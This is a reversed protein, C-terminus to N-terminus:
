IGRRSHSSRNEILVSEDLRVNGFEVLLKESYKQYMEMIEKILKTNEDNVYDMPPKGVHLASAEKYSSLANIYKEDKIEKCGMEELRNMAFELFCSDGAIKNYMQSYQKNQKATIKAYSLMSDMIDLRDDRVNEYARYFGLYCYGSEDYGTAVAKNYFEVTNKATPQFADTGKIYIYSYDYGDFDDVAKKADVNKIDSVFEIAYGFGDSVKKSTSIGVTTSVTLAAVLLLTTVTKPVKKKKHSRKIKPNTKNNKVSNYSMMSSSIINGILIDCKGNLIDNFSYRHNEYLIALIERTLASKEEKSMNIRGAINKVKEYIYQKAQMSELQLKANTEEVVKDKNKEEKLTKEGEAYKEIDDDLEGNFMKKASLEGTEFVKKTLDSVVKEVPVGYVLTMNNIVSYIYSQIKKKKELVLKNFADLIKNDCSGNLINVKDFEKLSYVLLEDLIEIYINKDCVKSHSDNDVTKKIYQYCIRKLEDYHGDFNTLFIKDFSGIMYQSYDKEDLASLSLAIDKIINELTNTNIMSVEENYRKMIIDQIYHCLSGFNAWTNTLKLKAYEVVLNNIVVDTDGALIANLGREKFISNLAISKLFAEFDRPQMADYYMPYREQIYDRLYDSVLEIWLSSLKQQAYKDIIEDLWYDCKGALVSEVDYKKFTPNNAISSVLQLKGSSGMQELYRPYKEQIYKNLYKSVEFNM